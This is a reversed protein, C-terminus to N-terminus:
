YIPKSISMLRGSTKLTLKTEKSDKDIYSDPEFFLDGIVFDFKTNDKTGLNKECFSHLGKTVIISINQWDSIAFNGKDDKKSNAIYSINVFYSTKDGNVNKRIEHIVGSVKIETRNM